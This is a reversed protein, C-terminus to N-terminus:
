NKKKKKKKKKSSTHNLSKLVSLCGSFIVFTNDLSNNKVYDLAVNIAKSEATFLFCIVFRKMTAARYMSVALRIKLKPAM